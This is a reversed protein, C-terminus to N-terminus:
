RNHLSMEWLTDAYNVNRETINWNRHLRRREQPRHRGEHNQQEDEEQVEVLLPAERSDPPEGAAILGDHSGGAGESETLQCVHWVRPTNQLPLRSPFAPASGAVARPPARGWYKGLIVAPVHFCLNPHDPIDVTM